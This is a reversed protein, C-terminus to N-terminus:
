SRVREVFRGDRTDIRVLEGNSMYPPVQVRMGTELLASKMQAQATAGKIAPDTETVELDVTMPLTISVVKGDILMARIGELGDKLYNTTDGLQERDFQFQEYSEGDMFHWHTGDAYMFSCPHTELDVEEFKDGSRFSEILIQGTLLNRMKTRVIVGSGRATPTSFTVDVIQMPAGKHVICVTKKFSTSEIM